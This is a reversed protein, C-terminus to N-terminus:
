VAIIIMTIHFLLRSLPMIRFFFCKSNDKKIIHITKPYHVFIVPKIYTDETVVSINYFTLKQMVCVVVGFSYCYRLNEGFVALSFIYYRVIPIYCFLIYTGLYTQLDNRLM